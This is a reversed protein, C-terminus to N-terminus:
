CEDVSSNAAAKLVIISSSVSVFSLRDSLTSSNISAYAMNASTTSSIGVRRSTVFGFLHSLCRTGHNVAFHAVVLRCNLYAYSWYPFVLTFVLFAISVKTCVQLSLLACIYNWSGSMSLYLGFCNQLMNFDFAVRLRSSGVAFSTSNLLAINWSAVMVGSSNTGSVVGVWCWM